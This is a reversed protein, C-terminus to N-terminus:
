GVVDTLSFIDGDDGHSECGIPKRLSLIRSNSKMTATTKNASLAM